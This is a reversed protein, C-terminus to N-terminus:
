GTYLRSDRFGSVGNVIVVVQVIRNKLRENPKKTRKNTKISREFFKWFIPRTAAIIKALFDDFDSSDQRNKPRKFITPKKMKRLHHGPPPTEPEPSPFTSHTMAWGRECPAPNHALQEAGFRSPQLGFEQISSLHQSKFLNTASDLPEMLEQIWPRVAGVTVTLGHIWRRVHMKCDLQLPPTGRVRVRLIYFTFHM